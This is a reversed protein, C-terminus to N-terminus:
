LAFTVRESFQEATAGKPLPSLDLKVLYADHAADENPLAAARSSMAELKLWAERGDFYVDYPAAQKCEVKLKKLLLPANTQLAREIVSFLEGRLEAYAAAKTATKENNSDTTTRILQARTQVMAESVGNATDAVLAAPLTALNYKIFTAPTIGHLLARQAQTLLPEAEECWKRAEGSSPKEKTWLPLSSAATKSQVDTMDVITPGLLWPDVRSGGARLAPFRYSGAVMYIPLLVSVQARRQYCVM